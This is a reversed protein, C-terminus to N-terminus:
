HIVVTTYLPINDSIWQVDEDYMRVCGHSVPFGISPDTLYSHTPDWLRSHFAYGSNVKFRVVPRVNYTSTTWGEPQFGYVYYEGVPTGRGPSGTGCLFTHILEWNGQSGKFVNVRQYTLNVWVLYETRSSYGKANVWVTKVDDAYDHELAWQTTYNGAYAATVMSLAEQPTVSYKEFAVTKHVTRTDAAGQQPSSTLKLSVQDNASTREAFTPLHSLKLTTQGQQLTVTESKVANGGIYWTATCPLEYPNTITATAELVQGADVKDPATINIAARSLDYTGYNELRLKVTETVPPDAEYSLTLTVASRPSMGQSYTYSYDLSLATAEPGVEITGSKVAKGDVLWQYSATLEHPNIVSASVHLTEGAPLLDVATLTIAADQVGAPINEVKKNANIECTSKTTNIYLTQVRGSGTLVCDRGGLTAETTTAQLTVENAAGDVLVSGCTSSVTVNNRASGDRLRLTGLKGGSVTVTCDTGSIVLEEIATSITLAVGSGTIEVRSVGGSVTITEPAGSGIVLTGIQGQSVLLEDQAGGAAVLRQIRTSTKVSLPSVQSLFVLTNATVNALNCEDASAGLWVTDTFTHSNLKGIRSFVTGGSLTNSIREGTSKHEVIRYLVTLLAARNIPSAPLLKGDTGIVYGAAVLAAFADRERGTLADADSFAALCELDPEAPILQFAEAVLWFAEARTLDPDDLRTPDFDLGMSAMGAAYPTYWEQESLGLTEPEVSEVPELLRSILTLVQAYTAPEDPHMLGGYGSMLGEDVARLLYDEAWHGPIDPYNGGDALAATSLLLAFVLVLSLFPVTKKLTNMTIVQKLRFVNM